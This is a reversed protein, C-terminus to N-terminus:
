YGAAPPVLTHRSYVTRFAYVVIHSRRHLHLRPVFLPDCPFSVTRFLVPATRRLLADQADDHLHFYLFWALSRGELVKRDHAFGHVVDNVNDTAAM